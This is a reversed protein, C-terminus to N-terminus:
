LIACFSQCSLKLEGSFMRNLTITFQQANAALIHFYPAPGLCILKLSGTNLLIENSLHKSAVFTM